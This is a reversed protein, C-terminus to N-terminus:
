LIPVSVPTPVATNIGFGGLNASHIVTAIALACDSLSLKNEV